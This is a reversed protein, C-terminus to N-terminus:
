KRLPRVGSGGRGYFRTSRVPKQRAARGEGLQVFLRAPEATLLKLDTHLM